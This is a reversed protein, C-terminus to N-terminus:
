ISIVIIKGLLLNDAIILLVNIGCIIFFGAELGNFTVFATKM